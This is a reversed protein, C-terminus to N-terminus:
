VHSRPEGTGSHDNAAPRLTFRFVAGEGPVGEAWVRGGHRQVIREVTALGLGSGAFEVGGLREFAGFIRIRDVNDFGIGNDRVYYAPGDSEDFDVGMEIWADDSPGTFKWANQLLNALLMRLLTKDGLAKIGPEMEFTVDRHPVLARLEDIIQRGLSSLDVEDRTIEVHKADVFDRLDDITYTMQLGAARIRAIYDQQREDLSDGFAEALYEAFQTVTLLPTKLDHSLSHSFSDLERNTAVLEAVSRELQIVTRRHDTMDHMDCIVGSASGDAEFFPDFRADVYRRGRSPSDWSFGFTVQEGSLCRDLHPKLTTEFAAEGFVEALTHGLIEDQTRRHEECFAQNVCRFAYSADVFVLLDNLAATVSQLWQLTKAAGELERALPRVNGGTILLKSEDLPALSVLFGGTPPDADKRRVDSLDVAQQKALAEEYADLQGAERIRPFVDEINRGLVDEERVTHLASSERLAANLDLICFEGPGRRELIMSPCPSQHFAARHIPPHMDSEPSRSAQELVDIAHTM